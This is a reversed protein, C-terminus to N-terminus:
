GEVGLMSSPPASARHRGMITGRGAQWVEDVLALVRDLDLPKYLITRAGEELAQQVLGEVAYATMMIVVPECTTIRKIRRYTEVGDMLPMKIDMFIVDFATARVKRLAEHGDRATDAAHGKRRLVFAATRALGENDDVILVRARTSMLDTNM